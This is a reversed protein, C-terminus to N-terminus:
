KSDGTKISVQTPAVIVRFGQKRVQTPIAKVVARRSEGPVRDWLSWGHPTLRYVDYLM